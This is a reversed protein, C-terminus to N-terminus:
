LNWQTNELLREPSQILVIYCHGKNQPLPSSIIDSMFHLSHLFVTLVLAFVHGWQPALILFDAQRFSHIIIEIIKHITISPINRWVGVAVM